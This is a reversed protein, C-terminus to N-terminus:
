ARPEMLRWAYHAAGLLPAQPNLAVRVPMRALLDAFRGKARFAQLFEGDQLAPLIKPAIGGGILVGATAMSKLALNGAEAGYLRCFLRLTERCLADGEELALRSILASPDAEPPLNRMADPEGAFGSDRLFLYLTHIGPGSLVREYSVHEPFRQRLWALLADEQPNRAALDAHGGETAVPLYTEGQRVLLAEGLGTGAAIVARNGPAPEAEPNLDVFDEEPLYLLGFAAAELDNLLRVADLGCATALGQESMEWPLNTIRSRGGVVPGAVGFCARRPRVEQEALFRKVIAELSDFGASPFTTEARAALANGQPQYLALMTKTGGIDGALLLNNKQDAQQM